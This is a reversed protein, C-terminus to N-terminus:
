ESKLYKKAIPQEPLLTPLIEDIKADLNKILNLAELYNNKINISYETLADQCITYRLNLTGDSGAEMLNSIKDRDELLKNNYIHTDVISMGKQYTEIILKQLEQDPIEGIFPANAQYLTFYNQSIPYYYEFPKDESLSLVEDRFESEYVELLTKVEAQLGLIVSRIKHNQALQFSMLNYHFAKETARQSAQIALLGGIVGGIVSGVVGIVAAIITPDM